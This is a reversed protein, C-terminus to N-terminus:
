PEKKLEIISEEVTETAAVTTIQTKVSYILLGDGHFYSTYYTENKANSFAQKLEVNESFSKDISTLYKITAEGLQKNNIESKGMLVYANEEERIEDLYVTLQGDLIDGTFVHPAKTPVQYVDGIKYKVGYFFHFQQIEELSTAEVAQPDDTIEKLSKYISDVAPSDKLEQRVMEISSDVIQSIEDRNVLEKFAGLEDTKYVYKVGESLSIIKRFLLNTDTTSINSYVWEILFSSDSDELVSLDVDYATSVKSVTDANQIEITNKTIGYRYSDGPQWYTIAQVTSDKKDIQAGVPVWAHCCCVVIISIFIFKQKPCVTM